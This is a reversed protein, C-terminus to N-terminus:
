IHEINKGNVTIVSAINEIFLDVNAVHEIVELSAVVDYQIGHSAHEEISAVSYTIDATDPDDRAHTKAVQINDYSPDIGTVTGGLRSLSESLLGGGCGVDLFTTSTFTPIHKKLYSMRVPHMDHLPGTGTTNLPNWWDSSVKSFKSVENPDLTSFFRYQRHMLSNRHM